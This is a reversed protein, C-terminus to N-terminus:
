FGRTRTGMGPSIRKTTITMPFHVAPMGAQPPVPSCPHRRYLLVTCTLTANDWTECPELKGDKGPRHTVIKSLVARVDRPIRGMVCRFTSRICAWIAWAATNATSSSRASGTSRKTRISIRPTICGPRSKSSRGSPAPSRRRWRRASCRPSTPSSRRAACSCMRISQSPRCFRRTPRRSRDWITERRASTQRGSHYRHLDRRAASQVRCRAISRTLMRARSCNLKHEATYFTISPFNQKYWGYLDANKDCIAVIEPRVNMDLLHCWRAAASAFERGMLGCGIIGFRITKM